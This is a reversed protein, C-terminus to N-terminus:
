SNSLPETHWIKLEQISDIWPFSGVWSDPKVYLLQIIWCRYTRGLCSYTTSKCRKGHQYIFISIRVRRDGVKVLCYSVFCSFKKILLAPLPLGQNHRLEKIKTVLSSIQLVLSVLWFSGFVISLNLSLGPCLHLQRFSRPYLTLALLHFYVEYLMVVFFCVLLDLGQWCFLLTFRCGYLVLRPLTECLLMVDKVAPCLIAWVKVVILTIPIWCYKVTRLYWIFLM